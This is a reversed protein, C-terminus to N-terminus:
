GPLSHPIVQRGCHNLQAILKAGLREVEGAWRRLGPLKDDSDVGGMRRTSRGARSVYLNGTVILPTGGRALRAYFDILEETVFGDESARAESTATKFLRGALELRGIRLPSFLLSM